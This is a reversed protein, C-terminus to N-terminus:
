LEAERSCDTDKSLDEYSNIFQTDVNQIILLQQMIAPVEGQMVTIELDSVLDSYKPVHTSTWFLFRWQRM